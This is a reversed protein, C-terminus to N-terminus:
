EGGLVERSNTSLIEIVSELNSFDLIGVHKYILVGNENLIYSSPVIKVGLAKKLRNQPDRYFDYSFKNNKVFFDVKQKEGIMIPLYNIKQNSDNTNNIFEQLLIKEKLSAESDLSGFNILTMKGSFNEESLTKNEASIVNFKLHNERIPNVALSCLYVTSLLILLAITKALKM